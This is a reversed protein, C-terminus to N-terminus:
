VARSVPGRGEEAWNSTLLALAKKWRSQRAVFLFVSYLRARRLLLEPKLDWLASGLGNNGQLARFADRISIRRIWNGKFECNGKLLELIRIGASSDSGRLAKRFHQDRGIQGRRGFTYPQTRLDKWKLVEGFLKGHVKLRRKERIDCLDFPHLWSRQDISDVACYLM